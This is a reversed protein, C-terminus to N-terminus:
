IQLKLGITAIHAKLDSELQVDYTNVGDSMGVDTRIKGFNYFRYGIDLSIYNNLGATFGAGLIVTKNRQEKGTITYSSSAETFVIDDLDIQSAGIGAMLYPVFAFYPQRRDGVLDLYLNISGGRLDIGSIYKQTVGNVENLGEMDIEKGLRFYSLELRLMDASNIGFAASLFYDDKYEVNIPNSEEDACFFQNYAGSCKKVDEFVMDDKTYFYGGYAAIYIRKLRPLDEKEVQKEEVQEKTKEVDDAFSNKENDTETYTEKVYIYRYEVPNKDYARDKNKSIYMKELGDRNAFLDEAFVPSAITALWILFLSKVANKM